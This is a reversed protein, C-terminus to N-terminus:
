VQEPPPTPISLSIAPIDPTIHPQKIIHSVVKINQIDIFGTLLKHEKEFSSWECNKEAGEENCNNCIETKHNSLQLDSVLEKAFFVTLLFCAIIHILPQKMM